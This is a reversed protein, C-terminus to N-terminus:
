DKSIESQFVEQIKRSPSTKSPSLPNFSSSPSKPNPKGSDAIPTQVLIPIQSHSNDKGQFPNPSDCALHSAKHSSPNTPNILTDSDTTAQLVSRPKSRQPYVNSQVLSHKPTYHLANSGPPTDKVKSCLDTFSQPTVISAM